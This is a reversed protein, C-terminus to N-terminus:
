KKSKGQKKGVKIYFDKRRKKASQLRKLEVKKKMKENLVQKQKAEVKRKILHDNHAARLQQFMKMVKQENPELIVAPKKLNPLGKSQKSYKPKSKFPLDKELKRPIKLGAFKPTIREVKQYVSDNKFPVSINKEKRIEAVTKMGAWGHDLLNCVPNYFRPLEVNHWARLFVIDSMLIKDEFSARFCGSQRSINRKIQGRIGSVTQISSREFKAVELASNFMGKIFATNKFVKYPTGTLKLKKVVDVTQSNEISVGTLAIRFATQSNSHLVQIALLGTGPHTVPGNFVANCHSHEPTYKLMRRRKNHEEIYYIPLTQFRRWGLSVIIPDRTKLLKKRWRHQKIRTHIYCNTNLELTTLSGVIIPTNPQINTLFECPIYNLTIRIYSGPPYGIYKASQQIDLTNYEQKNINDQQESQQKLENFYDPKQKGKNVLTKPSNAEANEMDSFQTETPLNAFNQVENGEDDLETFGNHYELQDDMSNERFKVSKRSIVFLNKLEHYTREDEFDFKMAPRSYSDDNEIQKNKENVTFLEGLLPTNNTQKKQPIEEKKAYVLEQLNSHQGLRHELYGQYMKTWSLTNTLKRFGEEISQSPNNPSKIQSNNASNETSVERENQSNECVSDADSETSSLSSVSSTAESSIERNNINDVSMSEDNESNQDIECIETSNGFLMVGTAGALKDDVGTNTRLIASILDNSPEINATKAPLDVYVADNDLSLHGIGCKPAYILKQKENLNRRKKVGEPLPCPDQLLKIEAIKYDGCGPVHVWSNDPLNTGRVYGYLAINRDSEPALRVEDCATLDEMRDALFFAHALRWKIPHFRMVSIFRSLNHVEMSPYLEGSLIGSLYFVKAGQYIETWFRHRLDKKARRLTKTRPILDLHTLVGMVQPFGHVQLINIFEFTEIEFGFSGDILLLCLDAIKAVDIMSCMDNDVEIFTVRRKKGSVVTIPGVVNRLNQRTYNKVLSRILTSKGVKPPGVVAVIYPPIDLSPNFNQEAIPVKHRKTETDLTRRLSRAARVSSKFAFAKKNQQKQQNQGVKKLKKKVASPGSHRKRHPKNEQADMTIFQQQKSSISEM